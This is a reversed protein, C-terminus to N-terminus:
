RAAVARDAIEAPETTPAGVPVIMVPVPSTRVLKEAVSGLLWRRLGTRGHSTMVIVEGARAAENIANSPNGRWLQVVAEVGATKLADGQAELERQATTEITEVVDPPIVWAEVYPGLAQASDIARLLVIPRELSVALATAVPLARESIVSGDLPVIVRRLVVPTVEAAADAPRIILVPIPSHHAVRDAVGGFAVRGVAGRGHSAMVILDARTSQALRLIEDAPDGSTVKFSVRARDGLWAQAAHRLGALAESENRAAVEDVTAVIRGIPDKEAEPLVAVALLVLEADKAVAQAYPIAQEALFSGDLPILIRKFPIAHSDM